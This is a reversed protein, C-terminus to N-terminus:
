PKKAPVLFADKGVEVEADIVAGGLGHVVVGFLDAVTSMAESGGSGECEVEVM